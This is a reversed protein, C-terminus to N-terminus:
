YARNLVETLWNKIEASIENVDNLESSVAEALQVKTGKFTGLEGMEDHSSAVKSIFNGVVDAMNVTDALEGVKKLIREPYFYEIDSKTLKCVRKNATDNLFTRIETVTADKVNGDLLVCLKDRYIPIYSATKLMEDIAVSAPMARSEGQSYHFVIRKKQQGGTANQILDVCKSLFKNDSPGEVVAINNPFLLDTPDTGLLEYIVSFLGNEDIQSVNTIHDVKNAKYIHSHSPIEKALIHSHTTIIVQDGGDCLSLFARKMDKQASPHLHLEAEDIVFLLPLKKRLEDKDVGKKKKSEDEENQKLERLYQAYAEIISVLLGRQMGEGKESANSEVGDNVNVCFGKIIEEFQPLRVGLRVGVCDPFKRTLNQYILNEIKNLNSLVGTKRKDPNNFYDNLNNWPQRYDDEGEPTIKTFIDYIMQGLYNTKQIKVADDLSQAARVFEFRPFVTRIANDIGSKNAVEGSPSVIEIYTPSDDGKKYTRRVTLCGDKLSEQLTSQHTQVALPIFQAVDDFELEVVIDGSGDKCMLDEYKAKTGHYLFDISDLSNTKGHNNPGVIVNFSNFFLEVEKISKYNKVQLRKLKM